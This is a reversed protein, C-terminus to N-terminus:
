TDAVVKKLVNLIPAHLIGSIRIPETKKLPEPPFVTLRALYIGWAAFLLALIQFATDVSLTPLNEWLEFLLTVTADMVSLLDVSM